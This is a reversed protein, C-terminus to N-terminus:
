SIELTNELYMETRRTSRLEKLLKWFSSINFDELTFHVENKLLLLLYLSFIDWWIKVVSGKKRQSKAVCMSIACMVVLTM